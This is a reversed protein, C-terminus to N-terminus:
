GSVPIPRLVLFVSADQNAQTLSFSYLTSSTLRAVLPADPSRDVASV